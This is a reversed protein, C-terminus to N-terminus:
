CRPSIAPSSRSQRRPRLLGEEFQFIRKFDIWCIFVESLGRSVLQDAYILGTYAQRVSEVGEMVM